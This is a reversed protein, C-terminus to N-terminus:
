VDQAVERETVYVTMSDTYTQGGRRLTATVTVPTECLQRVTMVGDDDFALVDPVDAAFTVTSDGDATVRLPLAKRDGPRAAMARETFRVGSHTFEVTQVNTYPLTVDATPADLLAAYADQLRVSARVTFTRTIQASLLQDAIRDIRFTMRVNQATFAIHEIVAAERITQVAARCVDSDALAHTDVSAPDVTITLFYQDDDVTEGTDDTRGQKATFSLVDDAALRLAPVNAAQPMPTYDAHPYLPAIQQSAREGIYRIVEEDADAFPTDWDGDIRVQTYWRGQADDAAAAEDFLRTVYAAAQAATDPLATVSPLPPSTPLTFKPKNIEKKAYLAVSAFCIGVLALVLLVALLIRVGKRKPLRM